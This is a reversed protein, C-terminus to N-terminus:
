FYSFLALGLHQGSREIGTNSKLKFNEDVLKVSIGGSAGRGGGSSSLPWLFYQVEAVPGVAARLPSSGLWAATGVSKFKPDLSYRLGLGVRWDDNIAHHVMVELPFRTFKFDWGDGNTKDYHYGLAAQGSWASSWQYQLGLMAQLGQGARLTFDKGSNSYRGNVLVDGGMTHGFSVFTRVRDQPNFQACAAASLGLLTLGCLVRPLKDM